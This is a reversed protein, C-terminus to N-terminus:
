YELEELEEVEENSGDVQFSSEEEGLIEKLDDDGQGTEVIEQTPTSPSGEM